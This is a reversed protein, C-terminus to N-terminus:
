RLGLLAGKILHKMKISKVKFYCNEILHNITRKLLTKSFDLGKKVKVGTLQAM